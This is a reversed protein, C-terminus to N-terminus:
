SEAQAGHQIGPMVLWAIAAACGVLLLTLIPRLPEPLLWFFSPVTGLFLAFTTLGFSFGPHGPLQSAVVCLTSATPINFLLLGLCCLAPQSNAFALLPASVALAVLCVSRAGLRDALWGGCFKGAFVALASVLLLLDSTRWTLPTFAGVLARIVIASLCLLVVIVGADRLVGGGLQAPALEFRAEFPVAPQRCCAVLCVACALVLLSVVGAPVVALPGLLSGLVVGVAGFSIFYGSRAFRGDAFVLSDIGGGIHFVANGLAVISLQLWPLVPLAVGLAVTLCGVLGCWRPAIRFRDVLLGIFLQLMFALANYLLYGASLLQGDSFARLFSGRLVFFCALDVALHSLAFAALSSRNRM